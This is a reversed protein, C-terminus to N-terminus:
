SAGTRHNGSLWPLASIEWIVPRKGAIGCWHVGHGYRWLFVTDVSLCLLRHCFAICFKLFPAAFM